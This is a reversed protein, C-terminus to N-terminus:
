MKLKDHSPPPIPIGLEQASFMVCEDIFKSVEELSAASLSKVFAQKEHTRPNEIITYFLQKRLMEDTRFEDMYPWGIAEFGKMAYPIIVGFYYGLQQNTKPRHAAKVTIDLSVEKPFTENKNPQIIFDRVGMLFTARGHLDVTVSGDEKMVATGFAKVTRM